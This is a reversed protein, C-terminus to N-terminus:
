GTGTGTRMPSRAASLPAAPPRAHGPREGVRARSRAGVSGLMGAKGIGGGGAARRFGGVDSRADVDSGAIPGHVADARQDVGGQAGLHDAAEAPETAQEGELGIPVALRYQHRARVPYAGLGEYGLRGAPEVGDADVQHGHAHIVQDALPGLGEEEEVVDGDPRHVRVPHGLQDPSHGRSATLHPGGQQAALHGLMGTDHLRPREVRDAESDTHDLPVLEETGVPDLYAVDEDPQGGGTEAAVPVRQSAM